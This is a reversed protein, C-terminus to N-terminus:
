MKAEDETLLVWPVGDNPLINDNGAPAPRPREEFVWSGSPQDPPIPVTHTEGVYGAPLRSQMVGWRYPLPPPIKAELTKLRALLTRKM